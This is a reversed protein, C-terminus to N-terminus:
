TGAKRRKGMEQLAALRKYDNSTKDGLKEAIREARVPNRKLRLYYARTSIPNNTAQRGYIYVTQRPVSGAQEIAQARMARARKGNM